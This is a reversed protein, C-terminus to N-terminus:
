NQSFIKAGIVAFLMLVLGIAVLYVQWPMDYRQLVEIIWSIIGLGFAFLGVLLIITVISGIREGFTLNRGGNKL